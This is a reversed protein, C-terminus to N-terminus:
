RGVAERAVHRIQSGLTIGMQERYAPSPWVLQRLYSPWLRRPQVALNAALALYGPTPLDTDLANALRREASGSRTPSSRAPVTPGGLLDAVRTLGRETLEPMGIERGAWRVADIDVGTSWILVLDLLGNLARVSPQPNMMQHILAHLFRWHGPMAALTVGGLEFTEPQNWCTRPARSPQALRHHVDLESGDAHVLTESHFFTPTRFPHTVTRRWGARDFAALATQLQEPRVLLDIDGVERDAPDVHDLYATANGKLVLAAVGATTLVGVAELLHREIAMAGAM